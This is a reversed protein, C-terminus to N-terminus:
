NDVSFHYLDLGIEHLIRWVRFMVQVVSTDPDFSISPADSHFLTESKLMADLRRIADCRMPYTTRCYDSIKRYIWKGFIQSHILEEKLLEDQENHKAWVLNIIAHPTGHGSISKDNNDIFGLSTVCDPREDGRL